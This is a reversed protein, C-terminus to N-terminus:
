APTEFVYSEKFQVSIWRLDAGPLSQYENCLETSQFLELLTNKSLM